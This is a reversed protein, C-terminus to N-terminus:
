QVAVTKYLHSLPLFVRLILAIFTISLFLTENGQNVIENKSLLTENTNNRYAKEM